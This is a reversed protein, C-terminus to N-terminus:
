KRSRDLWLLILLAIEIIKDSYGWANRMGIAVWALITVLVFLMMLIRVVPRYSSVIPLPLFLGALLALYGLGNLIFLTGSMGSAIIEISLYLHILATSITLVIIGIQVKGLSSYTSSTEMM